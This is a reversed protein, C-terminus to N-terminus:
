NYLFLQAVFGGIREVRESKLSWKEPTSYNIDKQIQKLVTLWKYGLDRPNSGIFNALNNTIVDLIGMDSKVLDKDFLSEKLSRMTQYEM